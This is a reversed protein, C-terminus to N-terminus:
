YSNRIQSQILFKHEEDSLQQNALSSIITELEEASLLYEEDQTILWMGLKKGYGKKDPLMMGIYSKNFENEYLNFENEYLNFIHHYIPNVVELYYSNKSISYRKKILGIDLLTKQSSDQESFLIRKESSHCLINGYTILSSFYSDENKEKLQCMKQHVGWLIDQQKWNTILNKVLTNVLDELREEDIDLSLPNAWPDIPNSNYYNFKNILSNLIQKDSSTWYIMRNVITEKQTESLNISEIDQLLEKNSDFRIKSQYIFSEDESSLIRYKEQAEQLEEGYLLYYRDRKKPDVNSLEWGTKKERYWLPKIISLCNEIWGLNFIREYIPCYAKLVGKKNVVLGSLILDDITEKDKGLLNDAKVKKTLIDRYMKLRQATEEHNEPENTRKGNVVKYNIIRKEITQLHDKHDNDKWNTVIHETELELLSKDEKNKGIKGEVHDIILSLIKQTLFPQGGTREIVIKIVKEPNECKSKLENTILVKLNEAVQNNKTLKFGTLEIRKGLNFSTIQPNAILDSVKAVGVFCFNFINPRTKDNLLGRIQRFFNDTSFPFSKVADIEDIFVIIKVQNIFKESVYSFFIDPGSDSKKQNWEQVVSSFDLNLSFAKLEQELKHILRALFKHYFTQINKAQKIEDLDKTKDDKDQDASPLELYICVYKKNLKKIARMLLSSKGFKRPTLIYCLDDKELYEIIKDDADRKVYIPFNPDLTSEAKYPNNM